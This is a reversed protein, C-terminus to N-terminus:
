TEGLSEDVPDDDEDPTFGEINRYIVFSYIVPVLAGVVITAILWRESFQVFVNLIMFLGILIGMVMQNSINQFRRTLASIM